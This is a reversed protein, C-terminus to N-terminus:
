RAAWPKDAMVQFRKSGLAREQHQRIAILEEDSVGQKLWAACGGRIGSKGITFRGSPQKVFARQRDNVQRRQHPCHFEVDSTPAILSAVDIGCLDTPVPFDRDRAELAGQM